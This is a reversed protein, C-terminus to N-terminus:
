LESEIRQINCKELLGDINGVSDVVHFSGTPGISNKAFRYFTKYAEDGYLYNVCNDSLLCSQQIMGCFIYPLVIASTPVSIIMCNKIDGNICVLEWPMDEKEYMTVSGLVLPDYQDVGVGHKRKLLVNEKGAMQGIRCIMEDMKSADYFATRSRNLGGDIIILKDKIETHDYKLVSNLINIYDRENLDFEPINVKDIVEDTISCEPHILYVDEVLEMNAKSYGFVNRDLIQFLRDTLKYGYSKLPIAPYSILYAGAGEPLLHWSYKHRRYVSYKYLFYYLWTPGWFFIDTYRESDIDAYYTKIAYRPFIFCRLAKSKPPAVNSRIKYVGDFLQSAADESIDIDLYAMDMPIKEYLTHKVQAAFLLQNGGCVIALARKMM